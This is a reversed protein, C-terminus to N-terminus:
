PKLCGLPVVWVGDKRRYANKTGTIVAMFSPARMRVDDLKGALTKLNEAGEDIANGDFLKVEVLAFKGNGLHIVADAELGNHDRYHFVKGGLAQAYVRLDRVVLSEFLYGFGKLDGMLDDGSYNRAICALSPDVFHRTDSTRVATRVNLQPSWAPLDEVVYLKKLANVYETVTKRDPNSGGKSAIDAKITAVSAQTAIVRSYAEMVNSATEESRRVGDVRSIDSSVLKEYFMELLRQARREPM